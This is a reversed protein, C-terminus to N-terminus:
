SRDDDCRVATVRRPTEFWRVVTSPMRGNTKFEERQLEEIDAAVPAPPEGLPQPRLSTM